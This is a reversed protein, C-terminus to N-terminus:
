YQKAFLRSIRGLFHTFSNTQFSGEKIETSRSRDLEFQKELELALDADEVVFINEINLTASRNDLNASGIISWHGDATFIKSHFHAPQFEYIRIGADLMENYYSRSAAQVIKSDIYPGPVIIEVRVGEQVKQKLIKLLDPDPLLYPTQMYIHDKASSVSLWMLQALNKELDPTPAHFLPAFCSERCPISTAELNSPYFDEGTLIEGTTQRWLTNFMDQTSKAGYGHVKFMLDRWETAKSANGLWEDNFALGGIYGTRGDIVMARMHTRKNGRLITRLTWLPRFVEVKGGAKKLEEFKESPNGISGKGDMLVRVEVGEKARAILADIISNLLIGEKFIYNTITVSHEAGEIEHLFDPVFEDGNSLVAVGEQSLPLMPGTISEVATIFEPTGLTLPVTTHTDVELESWSTFYTIIVLVVSLIGIGTLIFAMKSYQNTFARFRRAIGLAM